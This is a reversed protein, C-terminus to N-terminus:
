PPTLVLRTAGSAVVDDISLTMARHQNSLWAPLLSNFSPDDRHHAQGGALQFECTVAGANGECVLRMSAGSDMTFNGSLEGIPYGVNIQHPGGDRAVPSSNYTTIGAEDFLDARLTLTHMRGWLWDAPEPGLRSALLEGAEEMARAVREARTEVAPTAVDDWYSRSQMDPRLLAFLLADDFANVGAAATDDAFTLTRVKAFTAHYAACGAAAVRAAEDTSPAADPASTALGTPCTFDWAALAARVKGAPSDAAVDTTDALLMPTIRAGPLSYVDSQMAIMDARDLGDAARASLLQVIREHRFGPAAFVHLPANDNFPNGDAWAATLHNNATALFTGTDEAQPLEALDYYTEWEASGDGPVPLWAPQAFSAWPRKPLREYPYWGWHGNGDIVVWNQGLTTVKALGLKAEAVNTAAALDFFANVDGAVDHGTWRLSLAQGDTTSLVPGHHPVVQVDYMVTNSGAVTIEYTKTLMPVANGRFLVSAGDESLTEVYVDSHDLHTTTAGWAIHANQGLVIGPFGAFSMGMVNLSGTGASSSDLHVVHWIGPHSLFLHPDNAMRTIGAGAAQPGVVWNNSGQAASDRTPAPWARSAEEVLARMAALRAALQQTIRRSTPSPTPLRVPTSPHRGPPGVISSDSVPRQPFLDQAVDAPFTAMLSALYMESASTDTLAQILPLTCAASDLATWDTALALDTFILGFSYEDALKAGARGARADALWANVGRTYADVAARARTDLNALVVEAMPRGDRTTFFTKARKDAELTIGGVLESLRGQAVRRRLDMQFFRHSAQVYGQAAYCDADTQCRLHVVAHEDFFAEVPATLGPIALGNQPPLPADSTPAPAATDGCGFGTFVIAAVIGGFHRSGNM